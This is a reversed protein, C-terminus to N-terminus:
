ILYKKSIIMKSEEVAAATDIGIATYFKSHGCLSEHAMQLTRRECPTFGLSFASFIALSEKLQGSLFLNIAKSTKTEM